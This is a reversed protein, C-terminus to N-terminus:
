AAAERKAKGKHILGAILKYAYYGAAMGILNVIVTTLDFVGTRTLPQLLEIIFCTSLGVSFFWLTNKKVYGALLGYPVFVLANFLLFWVTQPTYYMSFPIWNYHPNVYGSLGSQFFKLYLIVVVYLLLAFLLLLKRSMKMAGTNNGM